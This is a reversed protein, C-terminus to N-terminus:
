QRDASREGEEPTGERTGAGRPPSGVSRIFGATMSAVGARGVPTEEGLGEIALPLRVLRGITGARRAGGHRHLLSLLHLRFFSVAKAERPVLDALPVPADGRAITELEEVYDSLAQNVRAPEIVMRVKAITGWPEVPQEEIIERRLVSEAVAVVNEPILFLPGPAPPQFHKRALDALESLDADLFAAAVQEQTVGAALTLLQRGMATIVRNLESRYDHLRSLSRHAARAESLARPDSYDSRALVKRMKESYALSEELYDRTKAIVPLSGSNLADAARTLLHDLRQRVQAILPLPDRGTELQFELGYLALGLADAEPQLRRLFTLLTHGVHALPTLQYGRDPDLALWGSEKFSRFISGRRDADIWSFERELDQHTWHERPRAVLEGIVAFRLIFDDEGSKTLENLLPFFQRLAEYPDLPERDLVAARPADVTPAGGNSTAGTDPSVGAINTGQPRDEDAPM